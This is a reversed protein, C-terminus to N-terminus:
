PACHRRNRKPDRAAGLIWSWTSSEATFALVPTGKATVSKTLLLKIGFLLLALLALLALRATDSELIGEGIAKAILGDISATIAELNEELVALDIPLADNPVGPFDPLWATTPTAASVLSALAQLLPLDQTPLATVALVRAAEWIIGVSAAPGALTPQATNVVSESPRTPEGAADSAAAAKQASAVSPPESSTAPTIAIQPRGVGPVTVAPNAPSDNPPSSGPVRVTAEIQGGGPSDIVVTYDLVGESTVASAEEIDAGPFNRQVWNLVAQPLKRSSLRTETEVVEGDLALTLEFEHGNVQARVDYEFSGGESSSGAEFVVAGPLAARVSALIEPPLNSVAIPTTADDGTDIVTTDLEIIQVGDNFTPASELQPAPNAAQPTTEAAPAPPLQLPVAEGVNDGDLPPAEGLDNNAVTDAPPEIDLIEGASGVTVEFNSGKFEAAVDFEQNGDVNSREASVLKAGPFRADVASMVKAPLDSIAVHVADELEFEFDDAADTPVVATLLWRSELAEACLLRNSPSNWLRM